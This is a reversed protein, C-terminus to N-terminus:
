RVNLLRLSNVLTELKTVAAHIDCRSSNHLLDCSCGADVVAAFADKLDKETKLQLELRAKKSKAKSQVIENEREV